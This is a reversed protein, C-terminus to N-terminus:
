LIPTILLRPIINTQNFVCRLGQLWDLHVDKFIKLLVSIRLKSSAGDCMVGNRTLLRTLKSCCVDKLSALMRSTAWLVGATRLCLPHDGRARQWRPRPPCSKDEHSFVNRNEQQARNVYINGFNGKGAM